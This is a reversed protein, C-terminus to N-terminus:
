GPRLESEYGVSVRQLVGSGTVTYRGLRLLPPSYVHISVSGDVAGSVRHIREPGFSFSQGARVRRQAASHGPRLRGEVITGRTVAVAGSSIDHDHWGTDDELDWCLLWVDLVDDRYLSAYHRRGGGHAVAPAWLHVRPAFADVWRRLERSTLPRDPFAPLLRRDLSLRTGITVSM